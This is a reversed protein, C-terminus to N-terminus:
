PKREQALESFTLCPADFYLDIRGTPGHRNKELTLSATRAEEDRELIAVLDAEQELDGSGKLHELKPSGAGQRNIQVLALVPIEESRALEKLGQAIASVREFITGPAKLRQVYDVVVLDCPCQQVHHRIHQLTPVADDMIALPLRQLRASAQTIATWEIDHLERPSRLKWAPVHGDISILRQAIQIAPQEASVFNVRKGMRAAALAFNLAMATKGVGPRAAILNLDSAQWGGTYQDLKPMGTTVGPLGKSNFRQDLLELMTGLYHSVPLMRSKRRGIELSQLSAIAKERATPADDTDLTAIRDLTERLENSEHISALLDVYAPILDPDRIGQDAFEELWSRLDVGVSAELYDALVVTSVAGMARKCDEIHTMLTCHDRYAFREISVGEPIQGTSLITALIRVEAHYTDRM